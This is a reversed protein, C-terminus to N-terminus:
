SETVFENDSRYRNALLDCELESQKCIPRLYLPEPAFRGAKILDAVQMPTCVHDAAVQMPLDEPYESFYVPRKAQVIRGIEYCTTRGVYGNPAVVYVFEARLIRHLAVTQVLPDDWDPPDSIFRVFPIGEQVVLTGRPSTVELGLENFVGWVECVQRYHQRFSGIIAVTSLMSMRKSSQQHRPTSSRHRRQDGTQWDREDVWCYLFRLKRQCTIGGIHWRLPALFGVLTITVRRGM